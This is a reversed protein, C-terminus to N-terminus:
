GEILIKINRAVFDASISTDGGCLLCKGSRILADKLEQQRGALDGMVRNHADM